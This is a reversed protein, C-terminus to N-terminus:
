AAIRRNSAPSRRRSRLNPALSRPLPGYRVSIQGFGKRPYYFGGTHPKKLGPIQGLIKKLIKGISSGSVRRTALTVALDEPPLAWLKRMYPYYFNECMAPGLGQHLVSAFTPEGPAARRFRKTAADWILQATFSKPLRLLLDVPKLPFHIWRGKLWIRGHRPRWLLDPGVAQKIMDILHQETSPHFRHSGFDCHVGELLFSGSNGGVRPARELVRVRAKGSKALMLAAGVGAPGAGLVVVQEMVIPRSQNQPSRSRQVQVLFGILGSAYLVSQWVLGIAVVQAPDAGFPNLLGAMSAERLGLGGLSIPAIAIIKATTWAYFWAAVPAEVHAARAFAINIGVFLCQMTMSMILCLLLRGPSRVLEATSHILKKSLRM